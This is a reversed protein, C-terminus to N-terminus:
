LQAVALSVTQYISLYTRNHENVFSIEEVISAAKNIIVM